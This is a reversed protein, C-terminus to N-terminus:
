TNSHKAMLLLVILLYTRTPIPKAKNSSTHWQPPLSQLKMHELWVWHLVCGKGAAHPDSCLVRLEKELVM